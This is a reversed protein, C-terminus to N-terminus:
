LLNWSLSDAMQNYLWIFWEGCQYQRRNHIVPMQQPLIKIPAFLFTNSSPFSTEQLQVCIKPPLLNKVLGNM